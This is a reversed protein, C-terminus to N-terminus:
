GSEVREAVYRPRFGAAPDVIRSCADPQLPATAAHQAAEKMAKEWLHTRDQNLLLSHYVNRILKEAEGPQASKLWQILTYAQQHLIDSDTSDYDPNAYDHLLSM